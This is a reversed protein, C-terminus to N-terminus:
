LWVRLGILIGKLRKIFRVKFFLQRTNKGRENEKKKERMTMMKTRNMLVVSGVM